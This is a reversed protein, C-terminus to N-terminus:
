WLPSALSPDYRRLRSQDYRRLRSQDCRGFGHSIM